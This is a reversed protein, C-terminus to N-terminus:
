VNSFTQGFDFKVRGFFLVSSMRDSPAFVFSLIFIFTRGSEAEKQGYVSSAQGFVKKVFVSIDFYNVSIVTLRM